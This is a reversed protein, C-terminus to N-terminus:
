ETGQGVLVSTLLINDGGNLLPLRAGTAPDYLGIEIQYTGPPAQADVPIAYSDVIVEGSRWTTTPRSNNVPENDQQGWLFNDSNINYVEGLLHHVGQVWCVVTQAIGTCTTSRYRAGTRRHDGEYGLLRIGDAFDVDLRNAITVDATTLAAPRQCRPMVWNSRNASEGCLFLSLNGIAHRSLHPDIQRALHDATPLTVATEQWVQGVDNVLGVLAATEDGQGFLFVHLTTGSGVDRVAQDYGTLQWNSGLVATAKFRPATDPNLEDILDARATTRAYFHLAKDEYTFTTVATAREALWNVMEGQPDSVGAYPTTVLWVGDSSEWIPSLFDDAAAPTIQWAHPVGRWQGALHYDFIPWDTDTFLIVADSPRQYAHITLALSNYDDNLVRGSHYNRLGIWAAYLTVATLGVGVVWGVLNKAWLEWDNSQDSVIFDAIRLGCDAIRVIGWALLISYYATFIVLYRPAFQPAYVGDKPISILYVFIIPILLGTVFLVIARAQRWDRRSGWILLALGAAFIIFVPITVPAYQEINLPIGVTLVTWYIKLFDSLATPSASSNTLFGRLAYNLWLGVVALIALQAGAWRWFQRWPHEAHKVVWLWAVNIAVPVPFFLYLSLLGGIMSLIYALWHIPRGKDWVRIAAWVGLVALLSTLAYMRIEQSWAISFRSVTIFLAALLGTARGNVLRGLRYVVAITLLGLLASLLRLGFESDGSGWRWAHLLWFYVPPHVDHGVQRLIDGFSQRAVWVSWGEDWWVSKDGLRHVRLGWGILLLGLMLWRQRVLKM